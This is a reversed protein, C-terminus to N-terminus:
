GECVAESWLQMRVCQKMKLGNKVIEGHDEDRQHPERWIPFIISGSGTVRALSSSEFPTLQFISSRVPFGM